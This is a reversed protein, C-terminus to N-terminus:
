RRLEIVSQPYPGGAVAEELGQGFAELFQM